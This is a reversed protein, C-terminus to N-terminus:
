MQRAVWCWVRQRLSVRGLQVWVLQGVLQVRVEHSRLGESLCPFDTPYDRDACDDNTGVAGAGYMDPGLDVYANLNSGEGDRDNLEAVEFNMEVVNMDNYM